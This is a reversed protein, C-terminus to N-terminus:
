PALHVLDCGLSVPLTGHNVSCLQGHDAQATKPGLWASGLGPSGLLRAALWAKSVLWSAEGARQWLSGTCTTRRGYVPEAPLQLECFMAALALVAPLRPPASAAAMPRPSFGSGWLAIKLVGAGTKQGASIPGQPSKSVQYLPWIASKQAVVRRVAATLPAVVAGACGVCM